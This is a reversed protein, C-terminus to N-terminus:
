KFKEPFLMLLAKPTSFVIFVVGINISSRLSSTFTVALIQCSTELPSNTGTTMPSYSVSACIEPYLRAGIM